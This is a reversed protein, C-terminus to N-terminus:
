KNTEGPSSRRIIIDPLRPQRDHRHASAAVAAAPRHGVALPQVNFGAKAQLPSFRADQEATKVETPMSESSQRVSYALSCSRDAIINIRRSLGESIRTIM